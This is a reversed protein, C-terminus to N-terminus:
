EDGTPILNGQSDAILVADKRPGNIHIRFEVDVSEPLDRKLEVRTVSGEEIGSADVAKKVLEPISSLNAEELPFLNDDLKGPGKLKVPVADELKGNKYIHQDIHQDNESDRAQVVIRNPFVVLKLVLPSEGVRARLADLGKKLPEETLLSPGVKEPEASPQGLAERTKPDCAGLVLLAPLITALQM